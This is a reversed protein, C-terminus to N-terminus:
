GHGVKASIAAGSRLTAISLGALVLGAAVLMWSAPLSTRAGALALIAYARVKSAGAPGAGLVIRPGVYTLPLVKVGLGQFAEVDAEVRKLTEPAELCRVFAGKDLGLKEAIRIMGDRTLEDVPATYLLDAAEERRAEPTCTYALAAPLAGPHGPLPVMKRVLAFRDKHTDLIDHIVPHLFRCHPCEFDTFSVITIKGPVELAAVAPPLPPVVPYEGWLFPLAVAGLGGAIWAGVLPRHQAFAALIEEGEDRLADKHVVAAAGAAVIVGLDVMVCWQCFAGIVLAQIALLIAAVAAGTAALLTVLLTHRRTRAGLALALLTGTAALGLTPLSLPGISSYASRRVAMCGSGAGCFAPDGLNRYDVVLAACALVAVFLAARLLLIPAVKRM